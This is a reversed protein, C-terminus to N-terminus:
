LTLECLTSVEQSSSKYLIKCLHSVCYLYTKPLLFNLYSKVSMIITCLWGRRTGKHVVKEIITLVEAQFHHEQM